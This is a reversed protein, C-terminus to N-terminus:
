DCQKKWGIFVRHQHTCHVAACTCAFARVRDLWKDCDNARMEPADFPLRRWVMSCFLRPSPPVVPRCGFLVLGVSRVSCFPVSCGPLCSVLFCFRVVFFLASASCCCPMLVSWASPLVRCGRLPLLLPHFLALRVWCAFYICFVAYNPHTAARRTFQLARAADVVIIAFGTGSSLSDM